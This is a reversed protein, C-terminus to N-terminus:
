KTLTHELKHLQRQKGTNYVPYICTYIGRDCFSNQLVFIIYFVWFFFSFSFSILVFFFFPQRRKSAKVSIFKGIRSRVKKGGATRFSISMSRSAYAESMIRHRESKTFKRRTTLNACVCCIYRDHHQPFFFVSFFKKKQNQKARELKTFIFHNFAIFLLVKKFFFCFSGECSELFFEKNRISNKASM